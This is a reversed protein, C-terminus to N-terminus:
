LQSLDFLKGGGKHTIHPHGTYYIKTSGLGRINLMDEADLNIKGGGLIRVEVDDAKLEDALISGTGTMRYTASTCKGSIKITGMGATVKATVKTANVGSITINGNGILSAYFEPCPAPNEVTVSFDSYNEVKNLYDSYVYLTPLGPKNVDETTVQIKLTNGSNTFIFADEFDPDSKYTILATSDPHCRYVVNVNDQVKLNTFQGTKITYQRLNEAAANTAVAAHCILAIILLIKHKLQM